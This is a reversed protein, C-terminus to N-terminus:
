IHEDDDEQESKQDGNHTEGEQEMCYAMRGIGLTLRGVILESWWMVRVHSRVRGKPRLSRHEQQLPERKGLRNRSVSCGVMQFFYQAFYCMGCQTADM